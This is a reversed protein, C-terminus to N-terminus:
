LKGGLILTWKLIRFSTKFTIKEKVKQVYINQLIKEYMRRYKKSYMCPSLLLFDEQLFTPHSKLRHM